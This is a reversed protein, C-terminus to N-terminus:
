ISMCWGCRCRCPCPVPVLFPMPSWHHSCSMVQVLFSLGVCPAFGLALVVLLRLDKELVREVDGLRRAHVGDM